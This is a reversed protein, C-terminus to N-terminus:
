LWIIGCYLIQYKYQQPNGRSCCFDPFIFISNSNSQNKIIFLNFIFNFLKIKLDKKRYSCICICVPLSKVKNLSPKTICSDLANRLFRNIDFIIETVSCNM